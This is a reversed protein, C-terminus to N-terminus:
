SMTKQTGHKWVIWKPNDWFPPNVWFIKTQPGVPVPLTDCICTLNKKANPYVLMEIHFM